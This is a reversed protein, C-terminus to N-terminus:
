LMKDHFSVHDTRSLCDATIRTARRIKVASRAGARVSSLTDFDASSAGKCLAAVFRGTSCLNKPIGKKLKQGVKNQAKLNGRRANFHGSNKNPKFKPPEPAEQLNTIKAFDVICHEIPM